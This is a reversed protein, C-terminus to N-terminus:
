QFRLEVLRTKALLNHYTWAEQRLKRSAQLTFQNKDKGLSAKAFRGQNGM